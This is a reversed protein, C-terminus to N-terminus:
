SQLGFGASSQGARHDTCTYIYSTVMSGSWLAYRKTGYSIMAPEAMQLTSRKEGVPHHWLTQGHSAVLDVQALDVGSEEISRTFERGLEFNLECVEAMSTAANAGANPRCLRLVQSRIVPNVPVETYSLLEIKM